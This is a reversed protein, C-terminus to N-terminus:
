LEGLSTGLYGRGLELDTAEKMGVSLNPTELVVVLISVELDGCSFSKYRSKRCRWCISPSICGIKCWLDLVFTVVDRYDYEADIVSEVTSLLM